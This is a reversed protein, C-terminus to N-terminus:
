LKTFSATVIPDEKDYDRIAYADTPRGHRDRVEYEKGGDDHSVEILIEGNDSEAIARGKKKLIAGYDSFSHTVATNLAREAKQGSIPKMTKLHDLNRRFQADQEEKKTEMLVRAKAGDLRNSLKGYAPHNDKIMNMYNQYGDNGGPDDDKTRITDIQIPKEKIGRTLGRMDFVVDYVANEHHILDRRDAEYTKTSTPGIDACIDSLKEMNGEIYAKANDCVTEDDKENSGYDAGPHAKELLRLVYRSHTANGNCEDAEQKLDNYLMHVRNKYDLIGKNVNDITDLPRRGSHDIRDGYDLDLHSDKAEQDLQATLKREYSSFNKLRERDAKLNKDLKNELEDMSLGWYQSPVFREDLGNQGPNYKTHSIAKSKALKKVNHNKAQTKEYAARAEEPTDYHKLPKGNEGLHYPCHSPDHAKCRTVNGNKDPLYKYKAM